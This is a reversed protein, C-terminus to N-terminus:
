SNTRLCVCFLLHIHYCLCNSNCRQRSLECDSTWFHNLRHPFTDACSNHYPPADQFLSLFLNIFMCTVFLDLRQYVCCLLLCGRGMYIYFSQAIRRIFILCSTRMRWFKFMVSGVEIKSHPSVIICQVPSPVEWFQFQDRRFSFPYCVLKEKLCSPTKKNTQELVFSPIFFPFWRRGAIDMLRMAVGICPLM